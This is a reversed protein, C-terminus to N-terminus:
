RGPPSWGVPHLQAVRLRRAAFALVQGGWSAPGSPSVRAPEPDDGVAVTGRQPGSATVLTTTCRSGPGRPILGPERTRPRVPVARTKWETDTEVVPGANVYVQAARLDTALRNAERLDDSWVAIRDNWLEPPRCTLLDRRDRWTSVRVVPADPAAGAPDLHGSLLVTPPHFWGRSLPGDPRHGRAVVEAGAAVAADVHRDVAALAAWTSLPGCETDTERGPGVRLEHVAASLKALFEEARSAHVDVHRYGVAYRGVGCLGGLPNTSLVDDIDADAAVVAVAETAATFTATVVRDVGPHAALRAAVEPTGTVVGLTGAPLGAEACLEALLLAALPAHVSPAVVVADGAVLAATVQRVLATFPFRTGGLVAVTRPARRRGASFRLTTTAARRVTEVASPVGFLRTVTIPAGTDLTEWRAIEAARDDVLQALQFLIQARRSSPAYAWRGDAVAARAVAVATSVDAPGAAAVDALRTGTAPDLTTFTGDAGPRWCGDLHLDHHM